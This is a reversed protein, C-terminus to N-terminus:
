ELNTHRKLLANSDSGQRLYLELIITELLMFATQEFLSGPPQVPDSIGPENVGKSGRPLYIVHDLSRGILSDEVGVIGYTKAGANRGLKMLEYTCTTQGSGSLVVIIDGRGIQSTITEGVFFAQYGLHMLRMCFCRLIYGSRGQASCFIFHAQKIGKIFERIQDESVKKFFKLIEDILTNALDLIGM